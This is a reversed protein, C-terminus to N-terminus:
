LAFKFGQPCVNKPKGVVWKEEGGWQPCNIVDGHKNYDNETNLHVSKVKLAVM